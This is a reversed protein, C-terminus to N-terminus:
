RVEVKPSGGFDEEYPTMIMEEQALIIRSQFQSNSGLVLLKTNRERIPIVRIAQPRGIEESKERVM